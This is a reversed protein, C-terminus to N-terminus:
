IALERLDVYQKPAAQLATIPNGSLTLLGTMTDGAKAVKEQDLEVIAAQVNSANVDGAPTFVIDAAATGVGGTVVETWLANRRGYVKGDIPAESIKSNLQVVLPDVRNDVYQKTAAQLATTPDGPLILAGTMTDGAKAVKSNQLALIADQTDDGSMSAGASLQVWQQSNGDDYWLWLIGTDTEWWLQNVMPNAPPADGTVVATTPALLRKGTADISTPVGVWLRLPNAMEVSLEGEALGTPPLNPTATRRIFVRQPGLTM